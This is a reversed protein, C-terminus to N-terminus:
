TNELLPHTSNERERAKLIWPVMFDEWNKITGKKESQVKLMNATREYTQSM